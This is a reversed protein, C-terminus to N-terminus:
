DGGLRVVAKGKILGDELDQHCKTIEDAEYIRHLIPYIHKRTELHPMLRTWARHILGAKEDATRPRLLSGTLRLRRAMILGLPIQALGGAQFAVSIHRGHSALSNLNHAVYDGGLMDLVIDIPGYGMLEQAWKFDGSNHIVFDAGIKKAFACKEESRATAVVMAGLSKAMMISMAGIGSNAGHVLVKDGATLGGDEILNAYVTILAEPLSAAEAMSWGKPIPLVHRLDVKVFEAYAGGHCLAMVPRGLWARDVGSGLKVIYGSIELGLIPSADKPLPYLGRRQLIDPRNIGFYATRIIVENHAPEPELDESWILDQSSQGNNIVQVSRM